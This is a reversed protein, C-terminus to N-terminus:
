QSVGLGTPFGLQMAHPAGRPETCGLAQGFQPKTTVCLVPRQGFQPDSSGWFDSYGM